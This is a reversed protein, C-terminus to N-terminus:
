EYVDEIVEIYTKTRYEYKCATHNMRYVCVEHVTYLGPPGTPVIGPDPDCNTGRPNYTYWTHYLEYRVYMGFYM